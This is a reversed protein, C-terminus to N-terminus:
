STKEMRARTDVGALSARTAAPVIPCLFGFPAAMARHHKAHSSAVWQLYRGKPTFAAFSRGHICLDHVVLYSLGYATVGVGVWVVTRAGMMNAATMVLVTSLSLVVPYLDNQELGSRRTRHHSRHWAWGWGHMVTRHVLAALPEMALASLVAVLPGSM